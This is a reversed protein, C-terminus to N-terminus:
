LIRSIVPVYRKDKKFKGEFKKIIFFTITMFAFGIMAGYIEANEIIGISKLLYSGGAIGFLMMFLPIVYVIFAAGLVNQTEMNVEVMDGVKANLENAAIIHMNMNEAGHQCAGCDGCAAHKTMLIKARNDSIEIVKGSQHM